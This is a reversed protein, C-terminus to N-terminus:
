TQLHTLSPNLDCAVSCWSHGETSTHGGLSGAEWESSPHNQCKLFVECMKDKPFLDLFSWAYLMSVLEGLIPKAYKCSPSFTGAVCLRAKILTNWKWPLDTLFRERKEQFQLCDRPIVHSWRARRTFLLESPAIAIWILNGDLRGGCTKGGGVLCNNEDKCVQAVMVICASISLTKWNHALLLRSICTFPTEEASPWM